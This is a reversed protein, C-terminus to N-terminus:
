LGSFDEVVGQYVKGKYEIEIGIELSSEREAKLVTIEQPKM